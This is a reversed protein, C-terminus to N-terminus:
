GAAGALPPCFLFAAIGKDTSRAAVSLDIDRSGKPCGDPVSPASHGTTPLRTSCSDGIPDELHYHHGPGICLVTGPTILAGSVLLIAMLSNAIWMRLKLRV